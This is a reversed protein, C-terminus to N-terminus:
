SAPAAASAAISANVPQALGFRAGAAASTATDFFATSLATCAPAASRAGSSIM